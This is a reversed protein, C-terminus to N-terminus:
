YHILTPANGDAVMVEHVDYLKELNKIIQSLQRDDPVLLSMNGIRKDDDPSCEMSYFSYARRAFLGAIRAIAAPHNRIKLTLTKEHM